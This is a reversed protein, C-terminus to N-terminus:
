IGTDKVVLGEKTITVIIANGDPTHKCANVVLNSVISEFLSLDTKLELQL